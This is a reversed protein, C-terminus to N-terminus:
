ITNPARGRARANFPVVLEGREGASLNVPPMIIGSQLPQGDETLQWTIALHGLYLRHYKNWLKLRGALLDRRQRGVPGVPSYKRSRTLARTCRWTPVWWATAACRRTKAKRTITSIGALIAATPTTSRAKPHLRWCPKTTGIGSAAARSARSPTWWTWFKFFNGSANGKAYAYECMIVPRKESPDALIHRIWDLHPYMVSFVDSVAPGPRGSEYHVLRTPDSARLWAAM